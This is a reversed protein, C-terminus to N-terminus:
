SEKLGLHTKAVTSADYLAEMDKATENIEEVAGMTTLNGGNRDQRMTEMNNHNEQRSRVAQMERTVTLWATWTPDRAVDRM